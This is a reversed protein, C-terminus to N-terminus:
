TSTKTSASVEGKFSIFNDTHLNIKMVETSSKNITLGIPKASNALGDTKKHIDEALHKETSLFWAQHVSGARGIHVIFKTQISFLIDMTSLPSTWRCKCLSQNLLLPSTQGTRLFWESATHKSQRCTPWSTEEWYHDLPQLESSNSLFPGGRVWKPKM